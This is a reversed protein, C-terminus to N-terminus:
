LLPQFQTPPKYENGNERKDKDKHSLAVAAAATHEEVRKKGM